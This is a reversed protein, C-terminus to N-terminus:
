DPTATAVVVYWRAPQPTTPEVYRAAALELAQMQQEYPLGPCITDAFIPVELWARTMDPRHPYNIVEASHQELGAQALEAKISDPSLPTRQPVPAPSQYGFEDIAAQLM